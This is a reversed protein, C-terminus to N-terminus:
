DFLLNRAIREDEALQVKLSDISSFRQEDRLRAHFAVVVETEYLNGSYDFLHVEPSLVLGASVTPKYGINMMGGKRGSDWTVWVAYVGNGPLQQDPVVQTLNATAYGITRGLQAGVVVKFHMRYPRGLMMSAQGVDGSELAKRIRTSSVSAEDILRAPIEEIAYGFRSAHTALLDLDGSRDSGFRHDYGIVICAPHFHAVLFHNIYAEASQQAFARTFPIVVIHHIGADQILEIKEKLPTLLRLSQEPYLMKRPHPDFTLVISETQLRAACARVKALIEQHGRHVGDFTGVTVVVGDFVPLGELGYFVGM